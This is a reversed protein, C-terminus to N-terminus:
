MVGFPNSIFQTYYVRNLFPLIQVDHVGDTIIFCTGAPQTDVPILRTEKRHTTLTPETNMEFGVVSISEGDCRLSVEYQSEAYAYRDLTTDLVVTEGPNYLSKDTTIQIDIIERPFFWFFLIVLLFILLGWVVGVMSWALLNDRM